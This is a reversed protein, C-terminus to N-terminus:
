SGTVMLGGDVGLTHVPFYLLPTPGLGVRVVDIGSERLGEVLAKELGPSSLRGDRGIAVSKGGVEKLVVAFSRGIARADAEHLTEGVVGRIDYERLISPDFRHGVLTDAM